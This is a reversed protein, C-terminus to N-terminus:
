GSFQREIMSALTPFKADDSSIEDSSAKVMLQHSPKIKRGYGRADASSLRQMVRISARLCMLQYGRAMLNKQHDGTGRRPSHLLADASAHDTM